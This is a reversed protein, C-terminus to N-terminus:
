PSKNKLIEETDESKPLEVFANRIIKTHTKGEADNEATQFFMTGVDVGVARSM